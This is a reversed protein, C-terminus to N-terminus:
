QLLLWYEIVIYLTWLQNVDMSITELYYSKPFSLSTVQQVLSLEPIDPLHTPGRLVIADTASRYCFTRTASITVFVWYTAASWPDGTVQNLTRRGAQRGPRRRSLGGGPQPLHALLSFNSELMYRLTACSGPRTHHRV